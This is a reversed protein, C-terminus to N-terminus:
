RWVGRAASRVNPYLNGLSIGRDTVSVLPPGGAACPTCAPRGTVHSSVVCDILRGRHYVPTVAAFRFETKLKTRV